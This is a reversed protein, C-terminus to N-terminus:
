RIAYVKANFSWQAQKLEAGQPIRLEKTFRTLYALAEAQGTLNAPVDPLDLLQV